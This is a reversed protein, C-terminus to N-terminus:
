ATQSTDTASSAFFMTYVIYAVVLGLGAYILTETKM